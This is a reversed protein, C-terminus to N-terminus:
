RRKTGCYACFKDDAQLATGCETCFGGTSIRPTYSETTVEVPQLSLRRIFGFYIVFGAALAFVALLVLVNPNMGAISDEATASETATTKTKENSISPKPDTKTYSIKSSVTQGAALQAMNLTHYTFGRNDKHSENEPPAIVFNTAQLPHQIELALQDVPLVAKYVFQMTKDTAGVLPNYYYEVHFQPEAVQYTVRTFGDGADGEKWTESTHTGDKQIACAAAIGAGQPVLFTVDLPLSNQPTAALQGQYQVLVGPQDYEPWLYINLIAIRPSTEASVPAVRSWAFVALLIVFCLRKLM